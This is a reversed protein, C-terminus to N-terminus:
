QVAVPAPIAPTRSLRGVPSAALLAAAGFNGAAAAFLTTRLGVTGGLFGALLTGALMAGFGIVRITANMRGQLRDPTIAQRLSLENIDYFTWAPDMVVQHLALLVVAALSVSTALPTFLSGVAQLLLAGVLARGTGIRGAHGAAIAGALSTLGGIAFLLGLAGPDFGVDRYVYLLYVTGIMRGSLERVGHVVALSRLVGDGAVLRVGDRADDWFRQHERTERPPEPRRIRAVFAASAVFSAADILLTAPGSLLQVLWGSLSFSGFEAVSASATLKSNGEVLEDASVLTPLYSHYAVSFFVTLASAAAAVVYLQSLTLAGFVAALPITAIAVARGIDTAILIPRRPLRDVWVGAIISVFFGPILQSMALLSVEFAGADLWVIATFQMAIGGILSGFVSITEGTWLKVFDPHRWLGDFRPRM